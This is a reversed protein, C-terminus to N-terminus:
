VDGSQQWLSQPARPAAMVKVIAYLLVCGVVIGSWLSSNHMSIRVAFHLATAIVLWLLMALYLAADSTGHPVKFGGSDVSGRYEIGHPLGKISGLLIPRGSTHLVSILAGDGHDLYEFALRINRKVDIAAKLGIVSRTVRVVEVALVEASDGQFHIRLPDSEVVADGDITVEGLNWIVFTSRWLQSVTNGKYKIEMSDPLAGEGGILLECTQLYAVRLNNKSRLYFVISLVVGLVGLVTGLWSSTLITELINM